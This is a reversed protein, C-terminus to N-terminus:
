SYISSSRYRRSFYLGHFLNCIRLLFSTIVFSREGKISHKQLESAIHLARNLLQARTLSAVEKGGTLFKYIEATPNINTIKLLSSALTETKSHSFGSVINKNKM